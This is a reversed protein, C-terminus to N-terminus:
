IGPPLVMANALVLEALTTMGAAGLFQPLIKAGDAVM